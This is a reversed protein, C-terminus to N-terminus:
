WNPQRNSAISRVCRWSCAAAEEYAAKLVDGEPEDPPKEAGDRVRSVADRLNRTNEDLTRIGTLWTEVIHDAAEYKPGLDLFKRDEESLGTLSIRLANSQAELSKEELERESIMKTLSKKRQRVSFTQHIRSEADSQSRSLQNLESRIPGTVFRSLEEIRVSIDSLQKQSYAQIPLLARVEDETCPRLEGNGIKLQLSGDSASRRVVHPVDNIDFRVDVSSDLPKVTQEILRTRRQQYNPVDQGDLAPPQDCLAWRLYELITSKGTGRGGILASYQKNFELEVPGLFSSNSVSISRVCASPVTPEDQSM